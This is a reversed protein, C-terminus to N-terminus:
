LDRLLPLLAAFARARHSAANKEEATWEAVTRENGPQGDPIFIPDYGFGNAGAPATALRGPWVGEVVRETGDPKVLAITSM